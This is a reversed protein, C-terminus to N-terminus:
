TRRGRGCILYRFPQLLARERQPKERQPTARVLAEALLVHGDGAGGVNTNQPSDNRGPEPLQVGLM